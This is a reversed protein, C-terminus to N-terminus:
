NKQARQVISVAITILEQTIKYSMTMGLLTVVFLAIITPSKQNNM